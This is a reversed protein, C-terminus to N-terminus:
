GLNVWVSKVETYLDLVKRGMERGWGSQKFGGFPSGPDTLNFCNIWVTGAQLEDAIRHAHGLDSTWIGAALGFPSDNARAVLDDVDSWRLAALVPGFIEERVIRMGHDAEAFVTPRLFYGEAYRDDLDPRGGGAALRAGQRRGAEIFSTVREHHRASVLPGMESAPDTGPGVAIKEARAAVADLVDDYLADHVYLRSGATCTQGQNFFIAEAAAEAVAEPDADPLVINPSKGGLELSVKKLNGAAAHVVARGTETSGTFAIKDVDDHAALAAGATAGRGTVVNVVGDPIGAEVLIEALRLTSLPTEEAPKLVVACGTALAPALKWCAMSMPFNWPVILGVVGVPQHTTYNLVRLGGRPSVPITSGEFKSPWGAFYRFLKVSTGVDVARAVSVPKGNDRSELLALEDANAEVLDAVRHLLQGRDLPSLRRWGPDGFARRAAAVARDVDEGDGDAVQTLVTGTAPDVTDFVRGSAAPVWSGGILLPRPSALFRRVKDQANQANQADQADEASAIVPSSM